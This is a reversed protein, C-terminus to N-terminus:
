DILIKSKYYIKDVHTHDFIDAIHKICVDVLRVPAEMYYRLVAAKNTECGLEMAHNQKNLM